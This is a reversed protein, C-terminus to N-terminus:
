AWREGPGPSGAVRVKGSHGRLNGVSEATYTTYVGVSVGNAAAFM